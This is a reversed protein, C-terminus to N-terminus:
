PKAPQGNSEIRGLECAHSAISRTKFFRAAWLWKDVRMDEASLLGRPRPRAARPGHHAPLQLGPRSSAYRPKRRAAGTALYAPDLDTRAHGSLDLRRPSRRRELRGVIRGM